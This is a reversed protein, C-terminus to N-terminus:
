RRGYDGHGYANVVYAVDEHDNVVLSMAHDLGDRTVPEGSEKAVLFAVRWAVQACEESDRGYRSCPVRLNGDATLYAIADRRRTFVDPPVHVRAIREVEHWFAESAAQSWTEAYDSIDKDPGFGLDRALDRESYDAAFEGSLSPERLSDMVLPDGDEIGRLYRQYTELSTNGDFVWSAASIGVERGLRSAERTRQDTAM